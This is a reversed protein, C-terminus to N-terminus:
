LLISIYIYLCLFMSGQSIPQSRAKQNWLNSSPHPTKESESAHAVSPTEFRWQQDLRECTKVTRMLLQAWLM